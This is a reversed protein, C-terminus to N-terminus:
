DYLLHQNNARMEKVMQEEKVKDQITPLKLHEVFKNNIVYHFVKEDENRDWEFVCPLGNLTGHCFGLSMNPGGTGFHGGGCLPCKFEKTYDYGPKWGYANQEPLWFVHHGRKSLFKARKKSRVIRTDFCEHIGKRNVM